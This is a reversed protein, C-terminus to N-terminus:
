TTKETALPKFQPCRQPMHRLPKMHRDVGPMRGRMAEACRYDALLHRCDTCCRRDDGWESALLGVLEARHARISQRLEDTLASAPQVLMRGTHELSLRLGAARLSALLEAAM